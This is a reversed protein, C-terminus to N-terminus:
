RYSFLLKETTLGKKHCCYPLNPRLQLISKVGIYQLPIFHRFKRPSNENGELLLSFFENNREVIRETKNM